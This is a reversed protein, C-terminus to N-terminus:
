YRSGVRRRWASVDVFHWRLAKLGKTTVSGALKAGIAKLYEIGAALLAKRAVDNHSAGFLLCFPPSEKRVESGSLSPINALVGLSWPSPNPESQFLFALVDYDLPHRAPLPLLSRNSLIYQQWISARLFGVSAKGGVESWHYPHGSLMLAFLYDLVARNTRDPMAIERFDEESVTVMTPTSGASEM